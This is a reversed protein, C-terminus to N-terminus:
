EERRDLRRNKSKTYEVLLAHEARAARVRANYADLAATYDAWPKCTEPDHCGPFRRPCDRLCPPLPASVPDSCGATAM